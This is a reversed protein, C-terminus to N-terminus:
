MKVLGQALMGPTSVPPEATAKGTIPPRPLKAEGPEIVFEHELSFWTGKVDPAPAPEGSPGFFTRRMEPYPLTRLPRDVANTYLYHLAEEWVAEGFRELAPRATAEDRVDVLEPEPLDAFPNPM